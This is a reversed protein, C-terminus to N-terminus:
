VSKSKVCKNKYNGLDEDHLVSLENIEDFLEFYPWCSELYGKILKRKINEYTTLMTGITYKCTEPDMNVDDARLNDSFTSWLNDKLAVNGNFIERWTNYYVHALKGLVSESDM